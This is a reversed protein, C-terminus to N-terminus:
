KEGNGAKGPRKSSKGGAEDRFENKTENKIASLLEPSSNERLWLSLADQIGDSMSLGKLACVAEFQRKLIIDITSNLRDTRKKQPM